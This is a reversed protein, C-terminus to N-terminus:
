LIFNLNMNLKWFGTEVKSESVRWKLSVANEIRRKNSCM